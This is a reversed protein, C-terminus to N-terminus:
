VTIVDRNWPSSARREKAEPKRNESTQFIKNEIYLSIYCNQSWNKEEVNLLPLVQTM